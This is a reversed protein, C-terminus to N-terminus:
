LEKRPASWPHDIYNMRDAETQAFKKTKYTGMKRPGKWEGVKGDEAGCGCDCGANHIEIIWPQSVIWAPQEKVVIAIM